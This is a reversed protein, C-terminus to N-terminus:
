GDAAAEVPDLPDVTLADVQATPPDSLTAARSAPHSPLLMKAWGATGNAHSVWAEGERGALVRGTAPDIPSTNEVLDRVMGPTQPDTASFGLWEVTDIAAATNAQGFAIRTEILSRLAPSGLDSALQSALWVAASARRSERVIEIASRESEPSSTLYSAEDAVVLTTRSRDLYAQVRAMALLAAYYARGFLKPGSMQDFQHPRALEDGTPLELGATRLVILAATMDPTPLGPQFMVRAYSRQAHVRIRRAVQDAGPLACKDSDLHKLLGGAASVRHKKLYAPELALALTAGLEHNPGLGTLATLFDSLIEAGVDVGYVRLPDLTYQPDVPDIVFGGPVLPCLRGYECEPTRDIVLAQAGQKVAAFIGTKLFASKGRGKQGNVALNGGLGRGSYRILDLFLVALLGPETTNLGAPWGAADGLSNDVFPVTLALDTTTTKQEYATVIRSRAVGPMMVAWLQEQASGAPRDTTCDSATFWQQVLKAQEQAHSGSSGPVALITAHNLEAENTDNQLIAQYESLLRGSEDLAHEGTTIAGERQYYQDNLNAVASATKRLAQERGVKRLRVAWDVGLVGCEDIRGLYESGPFAMGHPPFGTIAVLSQYSADEGRDALATTCVKVFRATLPNLRRLARRDQIDSRGGVDLVPASIMASSSPHPRSEPVVEVPYSALGRSAAHEWIWVTEAVTVPRPRFPAPIRAMVLDAQALRSRLRAPPIPAPAAGLATRIREMGARGPEMARDWGANALPVFLFRSREGLPYQELTDFTADCEELWDPHDEWHEEPIGTLMRAVVAAPSTNTVLGLMLCDGAPLTRFLLRHMDAVAKKEESRRAGYPLGPLRWGAWVAGNRTWALNRHLATYPVDSRM